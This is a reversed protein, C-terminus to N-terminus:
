GTYLMYKIRCCLDTYTLYIFGIKSLIACPM